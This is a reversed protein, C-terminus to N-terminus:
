SGHLDFKQQLASNIKSAHAIRGFVSWGCAGACMTSSKAHILRQGIASYDAFQPDAFCVGISVVKPTEVAFAPVSAKRARYRIFEDGMVRGRGGLKSDHQM